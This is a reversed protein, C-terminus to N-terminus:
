HAETRRMGRHRTWQHQSRQSRLYLQIWQRETKSGGGESVISTYEKAISRDEKVVEVSDYRPIHKRHHTLLATLRTILASVQLPSATIASRNLYHMLM